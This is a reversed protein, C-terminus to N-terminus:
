HRSEVQHEKWDENRFWNICGLPYLAIEEVKERSAKYSAGARVLSALLWYDEQYDLTLRLNREKRREPLVKTGKGRGYSTGMMGLAYLSSSETPKVLGCKDNLLNFSRDIELPDFYPDDGDLHHFKNIKYHEAAKELRPIPDVDGEFREIKLDPWLEIPTCVIPYYGFYQCRKYIHEIVTLEGLKLLHKRPLRMSGLRATIFVTIKM